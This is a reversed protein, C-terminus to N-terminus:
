SDHKIEFCFNHENNIKATVIIPEKSEALAWHTSYGIRKNMEVILRDNQAHNDEHLFEILRKTQLDTLEEYYLQVPILPPFSEKPYCLYDGFDDFSRGHNHFPSPIFYDLEEFVKFDFGGDEPKVFGPFGEYKVDLGEHYGILRTPRVKEIINKMGHLALTEMGEIDMKVFDPPPLNNEKVFDDLVVYKIEREQPPLGTCDDFKTKIIHKKNSVAVDFLKINDYPECNKKAREFNDPFGEISYVQMGAIAAPISWTGIYAGIDYLVDGPRISKFFHDLRHDDRNYLDGSLIHQDLNEEGSILDHFKISHGNFKIIKDIM